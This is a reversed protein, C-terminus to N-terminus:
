ALQRCGTERTFFLLVFSVVMWLVMLTFGARYADAGYLRVGEAVEGLWLRDLVLGVAPQLLMPGSMVGMNVVGASTGALAAPVSERVFAFSIIMCGSAFGTILLAVALAALPIGPLYVVVAWGALAIGCGSLYIRKRNGLRDSLWGFFPGGVAWAVLLASTLSAAEATALGYHTTLYPVGWLGAFSLVSGVVGAPIICLLATNRHGFVQGIGAAASGTKGKVPRGGGYDNYGRDSPYDRVLLWTLLAIALTVLASVSMVSRWGWLDVALRLPPGASVAGLIGFFLAMGSLLAYYRPAFWNAAIKLVGVFAVAVSAGVLLRGAGAFIIGPALAFLLAGVSTVLSAVSLLRRPGWRDALIGTPIQMAVYSYFYLASLNGLAAASIAFDRMLEATIVAPAVRHFFAILYFLAGCCWVLLASKLPPTMKELLYQDLSFFQSSGTLRTM